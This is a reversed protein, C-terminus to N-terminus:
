VFYTHGTIRYSLSTHHNFTLSIPNQKCSTRIALLETHSHLITISPLHSPIKNVRLVYPWYNQILTFYPSQLYTLYSKPISLAIRTSLLTQTRLQFISISNHVQHQNQTQIFCHILQSRCATHTQYPSTNHLAKNSLTLHSLINCLTLLILLFDHNNTCSLHVNRDGDTTPSVM